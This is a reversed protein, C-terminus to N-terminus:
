TETAEGARAEEQPPSAAGETQGAGDEGEAGDGGAEVTGTAESAAPADVRGEVMVPAQDEDEEDETGAQLQGEAVAAADTSPERTPPPTLAGSAELM